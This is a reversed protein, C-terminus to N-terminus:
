QNELSDSLLVGAFNAPNSDESRLRCRFDLVYMQTSTLEESAQVTLMKAVTSVLVHGLAEVSIM